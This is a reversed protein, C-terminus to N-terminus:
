APAFFKPRFLWVALAGIGILVITLTGIWGLVPIRSILTAALAGTAATMARRSFGSQEGRGAWSLIGIGVLYVGLFYGALAGVFAVLLSVPVLIFAVGTIMLVIASGIAASLALFGLWLTSFPRRFVSQRIKASTKPALVAVLGASFGVLLLRIVFNVVPHDRAWVDLDEIAADSGPAPRREVREAPVVSEPIVTAGVKQEFVTLKGDIQASESFMVRHATLSVDGNVQSGFNVRDGNILTYGTVQGSLTVKKGSVRLDGGVDRISVDYGAVTADGSIPANIAVDMGAAYLDGGVAGDLVVNRGAMHASGFIATESRISDGSMFLDDVGGATHVPASGSLFRDQGFDLQNQAHMAPPLAVLMCFVVIQAIRNM